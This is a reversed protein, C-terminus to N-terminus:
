GRRWVLWVNASALGIATVGLGIRMGLPEGTTVIAQWLFGGAVVAFMTTGFIQVARKM